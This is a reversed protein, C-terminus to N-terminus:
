GLWGGVKVWVRTGLPFAGSTRASCQRIAGLLEELKAGNFKIVEAAKQKAAARQKATVESRRRGRKSRKAAPEAPAAPAAPQQHAQRPPQQLQQQQSNHGSAEQQQLQVWDAAEQEQGYQMSDCSPRMDLLEILDESGDAALPDSGACLVGGQVELGGSTGVEEAAGVHHSELGAAGQAHVLSAGLTAAPKASSRSRKVSPGKKPKKDGQTTESAPQPDQGTNARRKRGGETVAAATVAAVAAAVAVKAKVRATTRVPVPPPAAAPVPVAEQEAIEQSMLQHAEDDGEDNPEAAQVAQPQTLLPQADQYSQQAGDVAAQGQEQQQQQQQQLQGQGSRNHVEWEATQQGAGSQGAHM